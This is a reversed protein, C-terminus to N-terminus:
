GKAATRAAYYTSGILGKEEEGFGIFLITHRMPRDKMSEYLSPLLSAGSWNDAVGKGELRHDYHAGVIIQGPSQGPLTCIVNPLPFRASPEITQERLSSDKCGAEAFLYELEQKREADSGGYQELRSDITQRNVAQFRADPHDQAAQVGMRGCILLYGVTWAGLLWAAASLAAFTRGAHWFRAQESNKAILIAESETVDNGPLKTM